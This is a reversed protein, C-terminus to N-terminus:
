DLKYGVIHRRGIMEGISFLGVAEIGYIALRKWDGSEITQKWFNLSSANRLIEHYSSKLQDLGKPPALNEKIYVQKLVEKTFQLNYAIPQSYSGLLGNVRQGIRGTLQPLKSGYRDALESAKRTLEELQASSNPSKTSAHRRSSPHSARRLTPFRHPLRNPLSAMM